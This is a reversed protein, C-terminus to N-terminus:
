LLAVQRIPFSWYSAHAGRMTRCAILEEDRSGHRIYLPQALKGAPPTDLLQLRGSRAHFTRTLIAVLRALLDELDTAETEAHHLGFFVQSEAERVEYYAQNLALRTVLALQERPPAFGGALARDLLSDFESLIECAEG